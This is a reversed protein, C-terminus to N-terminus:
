ILGCAATLRRTEAPSDVAAQVNRLSESFREVAQDLLRSAYRGLDGADTQSPGRRGRVYSDIEKAITHTREAAFAHLAKSAADAHRRYHGIAAKQLCPASSLDNAVQISRDTAVLEAHIVTQPCGTNGGASPGTVITIDPLSHGVTASYFGLVPHAPPPGLLASMSRLDALSFDDRMMIPGERVGIVFAAMGISGCTAASGALASSVAAIVTLAMM